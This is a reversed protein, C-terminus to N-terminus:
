SPNHKCPVVLHCACDYDDLRVPSRGSEMGVNVYRDERIMVNLPSLVSTALYPADIMVLSFTWAELDSMGKFFAM